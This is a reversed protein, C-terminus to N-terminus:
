SWRFAATQAGQPVAEFVEGSSFLSNPVEVELEEGSETVLTMVLDAPRWTVRKYGKTLDGPMSSPEREKRFVRGDVTRVEVDNLEFDTTMSEIHEFGNWGM